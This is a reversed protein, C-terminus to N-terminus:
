NDNYATWGAWWKTGNPDAAGVYSTPTVFTGAKAALAAPFTAMGGTRLPSTASPTWDLDGAWTPTGPFLAFLSATTSASKTIANNTSDLALQGSQFLTGNDATLVNAVLLENLGVHATTETNRISFAAKPWHAIVGNVYYGGSGRRLVAGIGGAGADVATGPGIGVLTFNAWLPLTSPLATFSCDATTGCGDNEIGHPDSAVGGAGTRPVLVKSQYAIMFQVRGSYGESADFHDDGANYSVLFKMDSAGGFWEFSDDLGNLAQLHDASTGSGVAAFTFSNLEQDTAPAFGAFEVRVYSLHGSSDANNTGGGYFLAINSGGTGSGEIQPNPRNIIGNGIIILGGWDGPRRSGAPQSSTFVIPKAATGVAIIKAGRLIFLSSGLTNFDGQIVTGPQITLTAGNGVHVFGTLRYITDAFLTRNATIDANIAVVPTAGTSASVEASVPGIRTGSEAHVRYRYTTTPQLGTDIYTTTTSTGAETFGGAGNAREIVYKTAGTVTGYTVTVSTAGSASATVNSPALLAKPETTDDSCALLGMAAIVGLLKGVRNTM